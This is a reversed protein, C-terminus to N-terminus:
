APSSDSVQLWGAQITDETNPPISVHKITRTQQFHVIGYGLLEGFTGAKNDADHNEPRDLLESLPLDKFINLNKVL